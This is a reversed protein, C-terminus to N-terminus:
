KMDESPMEGKLEDGAEKEDSMSSMPTEPSKPANTPAGAATAPKKGGFLKKLWEM